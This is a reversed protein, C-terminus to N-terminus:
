AEDIKLRLKLVKLECTEGGRPGKTGKDKGARHASCGSQNLYLRRKFWVEPLPGRPPPHGTHAVEPAKDPRRMDERPKRPNLTQLESQMHDRTWGFMGIAKCLARNTCWSQRNCM